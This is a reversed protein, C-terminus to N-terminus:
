QWLRTQDLGIQDLNSQPPIIIPFYWVVGCVVFRTDNCKSNILTTYLQTSYQLTSYLLRIQDLRVQFTTAGIRTVQNSCKDWIVFTHNHQRVVQFSIVTFVSFDDTTFPIGHLVHAALFRKTAVSEERSVVTVVEITIIM